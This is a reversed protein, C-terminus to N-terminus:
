IQLMNEKNLQPWFFTFCYCVTRKLNVNAWVSLELSLKGLRRSGGLGPNLWATEWTSLVFADRVATSPMNRRTDLGYLNRPGSHQKCMLHAGAVALCSALLPPPGHFSNRATKKLGPRRQQKGDEGGQEGEGMKRGLRGYTPNSVPPLCGAAWYWNICSHSSSLASWSSHPFRM